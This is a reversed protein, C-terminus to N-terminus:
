VLSAIDARAQRIAQMLGGLFSELEPDDVRCAAEFREAAEALAFAGIARASGKLLHAFESRRNRGTEAVLRAELSLAQRDFLRLLEAELANDGLTQRALHVLDITLPAGGESKKGHLSQSM